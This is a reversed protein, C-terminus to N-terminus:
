APGRAVCKTIIRYHAGSSTPFSGDQAVVTAAAACKQPNPFDIYSMATSVGGITAASGVPAALLTIIILTWM